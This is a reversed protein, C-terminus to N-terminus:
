TGGSLCEPEEVDDWVLLSGDPVDTVPEMRVALDKSELFKRSWASDDDPDVECPPDGMGNEELAECVSKWAEKATVGTGTMRVMFDWRHRAPKM